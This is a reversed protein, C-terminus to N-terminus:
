TVTKSLLNFFPLMKFDLENEKINPSPEERGKKKRKNREKNRKKKKRNKLYLNVLYRSFVFILSVKDGDKCFSFSFM